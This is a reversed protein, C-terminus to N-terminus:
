SGGSSTSTTTSAAGSTAGVTVPAHVSSSAPIPNLTLYIKYNDAVDIIEKALVTPIALVTSPGAVTQGGQSATEPGSKLVMVKPALLIVRHPGYDAYLNVRDGPVATETAGHPDDLALSIAQQSPQLVGAVGATGGFDSMTLQQGPLVTVSTVQGALLSADSVAGATVQTADIPMAKYLGRAAIQDGSTGKPIAATAVLVTAQETHTQVSSRYQGLAFVLIGAACLACLVALMLAGQRTAMLGGFSPRALRRQTLKV